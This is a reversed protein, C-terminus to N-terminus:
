AVQKLLDTSLRHCIQAIKEVVDKSKILDSPRAKAMLSLQMAAIDTCKAHLDVVLKSVNEENLLVVEQASIQENISTLKENLRDLEDQAAATAEKITTYGKPPVETEVLRLEQPAKKAQEIEAVKAKVIERQQVLEQMINKENEQKEKMTNHLVEVTENAADLDRKIRANEKNAQDLGREATKQANTISQIQEQLADISLTGDNQEKLLKKILKAQTSSIQQGPEIADRLLHLHDDSLKSFQILSTASCSELLTDDENFRHYLGMMNFAWSRKKEFRKEILEDFFKPYGVGCEQKLTQMIDSLLRGIEIAHVKIGYMESDIQCCQSELSDLTSTNIQSVGSDTFFSTISQKPFEEILTLNM